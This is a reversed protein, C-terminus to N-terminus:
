NSNSAIHNRSICKQTLICRVHARCMCCVFLDCWTETDIYACTCVKVYVYVVNLFAPLYLHKIITINM